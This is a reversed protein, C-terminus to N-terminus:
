FLVAFLCLKIRPKTIQKNFCQTEQVAQQEKEQSWKLKDGMGKETEKTWEFGDERRSLASQRQGSLETQCPLILPRCMRIKEGRTVNSRNLYLAYFIVDCYSPATAGIVVWYQVFTSCRCFWQMASRSWSVCVSPVKKPTHSHHSNMPTFLIAKNSARGSILRTM